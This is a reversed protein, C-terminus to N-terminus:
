KTGRGICVGRRFVEIDRLQAEEFWAQVTKASQPYDHKPSLMDFTDLVAWERLQTDSLPIVGEYNAVPIAYRLKRGIVSIRGVHNSLPLLWPVMIQVLKFLRDERVRKTFPRLWYKPWLANLLLKAYVDVALRGNPALQRPLAM